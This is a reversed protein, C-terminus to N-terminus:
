QIIMRPVDSPRQQPCLSTNIKTHDDAFAGSYVPATFGGTRFIPFRFAPLTHGEFAISEFVNGVDAFM